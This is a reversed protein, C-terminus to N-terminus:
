RVTQNMSFIGDPDLTKQTQVIREKNTERLYLGCDTVTDFDEEQNSVAHITKQGGAKILEQRFWKNFQVVKAREAADRQEDGTTKWTTQCLLWYKKDRMEFATETAPVQTTKAGVHNFLAVAGKIGNAHRGRQAEAFVAAIEPTISPVFINTYYYNDPLEKSTEKMAETHYDKVSLKTPLRFWTGLRNAKLDSLGPVQALDVSSAATASDVDQRIWTSNCSIGVAVVVPAGLPLLVLSACDDPTSLSWEGYRVLVDQVGKQTLVFNVSELMGINRIPFVKMTLTTIVGINGGGGRINFLIDQEQKDTTDRQITKVTGDALVIEASVIQDVAPGFQKSLYGQGGGLTLGIVGTDTHTGTVPALHHPALANLM